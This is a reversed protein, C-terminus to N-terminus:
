LGLAPVHENPYHSSKLKSINFCLGSKMVQFCRAALNRHHIEEAIFWRQNGCRRNDSLYDSFSAHLMRVAEGPSWKLLCRLRLLILSCGNIGVPSSRSAVGSTTPYRGSYAM